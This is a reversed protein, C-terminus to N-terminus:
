YLTVIGHRTYLAKASLYNLFATLYLVINSKTCLVYTQCVATKMFLVEQKHSNEM